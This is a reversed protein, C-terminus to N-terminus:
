SAASRTRCRQGCWATKTGPTYVHSCRCARVCARVYVGGVCRMSLGQTQMYSRAVHSLDHLFTIARAPSYYRALMHVISMNANASVMKSNLRGALHEGSRIIIREQDFLCQTETKTTDAAFNHDVPIRTNRLAATVLQKGTYYVHMKQSADYLAVGSANTVTKGAADKLKPRCFIAGEPMTVHGAGGDDHSKVTDWPLMQMFEERTFFTHDTLMFSSTTVDQIAGICPANTAPNLLQAQVSCLLTAEAVAELTQPMHLNMDDGDFDANYPPTTEPPLRLTDGMPLIKVKHAM